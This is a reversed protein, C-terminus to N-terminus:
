LILKNYFSQSFDSQVKRDVDAGMEILAGTAREQGYLAAHHLPTQGENDRLNVDAGFNVLCEVVM